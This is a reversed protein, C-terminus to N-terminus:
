RATESQTATGRATRNQGCDRGHQPHGTASAAGRLFTGIRCAKTFTQPRAVPIDRLISPYGWNATRYGCAQLHRELPRLMWRGAALGHILVVTTSKM